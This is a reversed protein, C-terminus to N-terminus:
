RKNSTHNHNLFNDGDKHYQELFKINLGNNKTNHAGTFM